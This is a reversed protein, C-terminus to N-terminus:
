EGEQNIIFQKLAEVADDELAPQSVWVGGDSFFELVSLNKKLTGSVCTCVHVSTGILPFVIVLENVPVQRVRLAFGGVRKIDAYLAKYDHKQSM